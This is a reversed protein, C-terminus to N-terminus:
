IYLVAPSLGRWSGVDAVDATRGTSGRRCAFQDVHLPITSFVQGGVTVVDGNARNRLRRAAKQEEEAHSAKSELALM